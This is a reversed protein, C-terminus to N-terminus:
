KQGLAAAIARQRRSLLPRATDKNTLTKIGSNPVPQSKLPAPITPELESMVKAYRKADNRLEDEILKMAEEEDLVEGHEKWTRKILEMVDDESKSERILRYDNSSKALKDVTRKMHTYVAEEQATDKETFKTDIGKKLAEIEQKLALVESTGNQSALIDETLKDYTVGLEQLVSLPETKLRAELDARSPGVLAKEKESLEREKVQLARRQRALAALQPSLPQTAEVGEKTQADTDSVSSEAVPATPEVVSAEQTIPDGYRNVTRNTNMKISTQQLARKPDENPKEKDEPEEPTGGQAIAKLRTLKEPSVGSNSINIPTPTGVVPNIKM